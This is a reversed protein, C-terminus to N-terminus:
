SIKFWARVDEPLSRVVLAAIAAGAAVILAERVIEPFTPVWKNM